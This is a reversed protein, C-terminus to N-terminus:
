RNNVQWSEAIKLLRRIKIGANTIDGEPPQDILGAPEWCMGDELHTEEERLNLSVQM